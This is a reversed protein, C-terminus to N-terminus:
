FRLGLAKLREEEELTLEGAVLRHFMEFAKEHFQTHEFLVEVGRDIGEIAEQVKLPEIALYTRLVM